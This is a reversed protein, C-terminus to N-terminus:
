EKNQSSAVETPKAQPQEETPKAVEPAVESPTAAAATAAAATAAAEQEKALAEAEKSVLPAIKVIELNNDTLIKVKDSVKLDAVKITQGVATLNKVDVEIKEPLDAPLAEVEVESLINLIVGLKDKVAPAESVVLLPVKAVVKEKLDVQYFDIHIPQQTVPHYQVNHILVPRKEGEVDLEILGTEGAKAFVPALEKEVVQVALSKVKKGYVNAPVIEDKRLKKVKRGLVTRKAVKLKLKEM